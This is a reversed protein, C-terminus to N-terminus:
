ATISDFANNFALLYQGNGAIDDFADCVRYENKPVIVIQLDNM